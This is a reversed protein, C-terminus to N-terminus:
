NEVIKPEIFVASDPFITKTLQMMSKSSICTENLRNLKFRLSQLTILAKKINDPWIKLGDYSQLCQSETIFVMMVKCANLNM